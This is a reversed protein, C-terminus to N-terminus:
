HRYGRCKPHVSAKPHARFIGRAAGVRTSTETPSPSRRAPVRFRAAPNRPELSKASAGHGMSSNEGASRIDRFNNIRAVTKNRNPKGSLRAIFIGIFFPLRGRPLKQTQGVVHLPRRRNLAAGSDTPSLTACADLWRRRRVRARIHGRHPPPDTSAIGHGPPFRARPDGGCKRRVAGRAPLATRSRPTGAIIPEWAAPM